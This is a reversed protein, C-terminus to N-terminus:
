KSVAAQIDIRYVEKVFCKLSELTDSKIHTYYSLNQKDPFLLLYSNDKKYLEVEGCSHDNWQNLLTADAIDKDPSGSAQPISFKKRFQETTFNYVTRIDFPHRGDAASILEKSARSKLGTGYWLTVYMGHQVLADILPKFDLDSTLFTAKHMNGYFSHTLMDVAIM